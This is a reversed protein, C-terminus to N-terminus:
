KQNQCLSRVGGSVECDGSLSHLYTYGVLLDLSRARGMKNACPVLFVCYFPLTEMWHVKLWDNILTLYLMADEHAHPGVIPCEAHRGEFWIIVYAEM